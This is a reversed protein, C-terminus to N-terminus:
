CLVMTMRVSPLFIRTGVSYSSPHVDLGIQMIGILSFARAGRLVQFRSQGAWLRFMISVMSDQPIKRLALMALTHLHGCVGM